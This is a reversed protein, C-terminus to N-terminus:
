TRRVNQMAIVAWRRGERVVEYRFSPIIRGANGKSAWSEARWRFRTVFAPHGDGVPRDTEIVRVTDFPDANM